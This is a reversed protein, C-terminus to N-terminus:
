VRRRLLIPARGVNSHDAVSPRPHATQAQRLAEEHRGMASLFGGYWHHAVAYTPNLEIARRYEREAAVWDYDFELHIHALSGHAEALTSDFQLARM